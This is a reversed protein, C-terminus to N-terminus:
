RLDAKELYEIVKECYDTQVFDSESSIFQSLYSYDGNEMPTDYQNLLNTYSLCGKARIQRAIEPNKPENGYINFNGYQFLVAGSMGKERYYDIDDASNIFPHVAVNIDTKQCEEAFNRDWTYIMVQDHMGAETVADVLSAADIEKTDINVYIRDKCAALAQALTPVKVTNGDMDRYVVGNKAMDYRCIEEYTMDAVNGKGNTFDDIYSDHAMVFIGDKTTRVDLEVMDAGHKIALEIAPISNDPVNNMVGEYTNARHAVVFVRTRTGGAAQEGVLNRFLGLLNREAPESM